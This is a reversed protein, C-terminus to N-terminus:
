ASLLTGFDYSVEIKCKITKADKTWKVLYYKGRPLSDVKRLTKYVEGFNTIKAGTSDLIQLARVNEFGSISDKQTYASMGLLLFAILILKKMEGKNLNSLYM